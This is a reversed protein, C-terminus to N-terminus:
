NEFWIKILVIWCVLALENNVHTVAYIYRLLESGTNRVDHLTNSPCYILVRAEVKLRYYGDFCIEGESNLVIIVEEGNNTNHKCVSEDPKLRVLGSNVAITNEDCKLLWQYGSSDFDLKILMPKPNNM